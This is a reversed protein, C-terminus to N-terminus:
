NYIIQHQWIPNSILQTNTEFSVDVAVTRRCNPVTMIVTCCFGKSVECAFLCRNNLKLNLRYRNRNNHCHISVPTQVAIFVSLCEYYMVSRSDPLYIQRRSSSSLFSLSKTCVRTEALYINNEVQEITDRAIFFYFDLVGCVGPGCLILLGM